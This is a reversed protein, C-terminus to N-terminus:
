SRLFKNLILLYVVLPVSTIVISNTNGFNTPRPNIGVIRQENQMSLFLVINWKLLYILIVQLHKKIEMSSHPSM